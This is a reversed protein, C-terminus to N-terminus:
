SQIFGGGCTCTKRHGLCCGDVAGTQAAFSPTRPANLTMAQMHQLRPTDWQTNRYANFLGMALGADELADHSARDPVGLWVKANFYIYRYICAYV